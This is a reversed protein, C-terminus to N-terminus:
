RASETPSARGTSQLRASADGCIDGTLNGFFQKGIDLYDDAHPVSSRHAAVWKLFGAWLADSKQSAEKVSQGEAMGQVVRGMLIFYPGYWDMSEAKGSFYDCSYRGQHTETSMETWHGFAATTPLSKIYETSFEANIFAIKGKLEPAGSGFGPRWKQCDIEEKDNCEIQDRMGGGIWVFMRVSEMRVLRRITEPTAEKMLFIIRSGFRQKLPQILYPEYYPAMQNWGHGCNTSLAVVIEPQAKGSDQGQCTGAILLILGPLFPILKRKM